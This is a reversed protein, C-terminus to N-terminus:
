DGDVFFLESAIGDAQFWKEYPIRVYGNEEIVNKLQLQTQLEKEFQLQINPSFHNLVTKKNLGKSTRLQTLVLENYQDKESLNEIEFYADDTKVLKMYVANNSINWQRSTGNYSHAAPGIGLYNANDWYASNHRSHKNAKGLNSIEYHEFGAQQSWDQLLKFHRAQKTDDVDPLIKSKVAQGLATKDEITLAYCSLHQIPMKEVINLQRQWQEDTLLQSGYILDVSINDFGALHAQEICAFSQEASHARNMWNLEEKYFSQLGISLRNVGITKLEKLKTLSLDDPNAELTIEIPDIIKYQSRIKLLLNEIHETDIISPTGGGFYITSVTQSKLYNRKLDLEQLMSEIMQAVYKTNTSFHFDCYNCAQKCFPIHIYIGAM